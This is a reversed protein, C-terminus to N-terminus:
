GTEQQGLDGVSPRFLAVDVDSLANDRGEAHSGYLYLAIISEEAQAWTRMAKLLSELDTPKNNKDMFNM